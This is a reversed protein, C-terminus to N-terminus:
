IRVTRPTPSRNEDASSSSARSTEYVIEFCAGGLVSPAIAIDGGDVRALERAVTLGLGSGEGMPRRGRFFRDFVRQREDPEIGPGDDDVRVSAYGAGQRISVVVRSDAFRCANEVLNTITQVIRVRDGTTSAQGDVQIEIPSDQLSAIAERACDALNVNEVGSTPARAMALLADVTHQLRETQRLAAAIERKPDGGDGASELSLRLATLPTRIQHSADAAFERNARVLDSLEDTMANLDRALEQVEEPGSVPVRANLDGAAISRASSAAARLPRVVWRSLWYSLGLGTALVLVAVVGLYLYGRHVSGTVEDMPYSIRVAGLIRDGSRIPVASVLLDRGLSNSHRTSWNGEGSLADAIEPRTGYNPPNAGPPDLSDAVLTGETDTIVIRGGIREAFRVVTPQLRAIAGAEFHDEVSMAVAYAEREVRGGLEATLRRGLTIGFPVALSVIVAVLLYTAGLMLRRTV